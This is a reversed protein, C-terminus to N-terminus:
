RNIHKNREQQYKQVLKQGKANVIGHLFHMTLERQIDALNMGVAQSFNPNFAIMMCELRYRSLLEVNIESRYLEERIGRSLNDFMVRYLFENKHRLFKAFSSPHYKQMDFLLSNNMKRFVETMMDVALFIEHVANESRARDVECCAQNQELEMAVVADVLQDKDAFFQYITKKSMGLASAIDDMSVSRLGYQMYLDHAVQRIRDRTETNVTETMAPAFSHFSNVNDFNGDLKNVM